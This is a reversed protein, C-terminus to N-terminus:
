IKMNGTLWSLSKGINGTVILMIALLIALVIVSIAVWIVANKMEM